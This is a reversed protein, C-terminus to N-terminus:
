QFTLNTVHGGTSNLNNQVKKKWVIIRIIKVIFGIVPIYELTIKVGTITIIIASVTKNEYDYM